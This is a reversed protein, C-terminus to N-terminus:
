LNEKQVNLEREAYQDRHIPDSEVGLSLLNRRRFRSSSGPSQVLVAAISAGPLYRDNLMIARRLLRAPGSVHPSGGGYPRGTDEM